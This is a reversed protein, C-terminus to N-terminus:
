RLGARRILMVGRALPTHPNGLRGAPNAVNRTHVDSWRSQGFDFDATSKGQRLRWGAAVMNLQGTQTIVHNPPPSNSIRGAHRRQSIGTATTKAPFARM